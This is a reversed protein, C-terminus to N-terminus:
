VTTEEKLPLVGASPVGGEASEPKADKLLAPQIKKL